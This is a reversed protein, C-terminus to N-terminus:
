VHKLGSQFPNKVRFLRKEVFEDGQGAVFAALDPNVRWM